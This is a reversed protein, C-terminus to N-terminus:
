KRIVDEDEPVLVHTLDGMCFLLHVLIFVSSVSNASINLFNYSCKLNLMSLRISFGGLSALFYILKQATTSSYETNLENAQLVIIAINSNILFQSHSQYEQQINPLWNFCYM